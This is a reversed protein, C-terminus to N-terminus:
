VLVAAVTGADATPKTTITITPLKSMPPADLPSRACHLHSQQPV